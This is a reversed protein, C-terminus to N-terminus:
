FLALSKIITIKGIPTLDLQSWINLITSLKRCQPQFNLKFLEHTNLSIIVGLFKVPGKTFQYNEEPFIGENKNKLSGIRLFVSKDINM